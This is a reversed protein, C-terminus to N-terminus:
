EPYELYVELFYGKEQEEGLKLIFETLNDKDTIYVWEFGGTPLFLCMAWGYINNADVYMITNLSFDPNYDPCEPNNAKAYPHLVASVGGLLYKNIFMSM